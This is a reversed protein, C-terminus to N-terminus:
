GATPIDGCAIPSSLDDISAHIAIAYEGMVRLDRLSADITTESAGTDDIPRLLYAPAPDLNDCTGAHIIAVAGAPAGVVLVKVETQAEKPSEALTALGSVGSGGREELTLGVPGLAFGGTATASAAPTSGGGPLTLNALLAERAATESEADVRLTTYEFSLISQGAVIPQCEVYDSYEEAQGNSTYTFEIVAWASDGDTGRQENGSADTGIKVDSYGANGQYYQVLADICAATTNSWPFGSLDVFAKASELRLFDYGDQSSQTVERWDSTWTLSYGYTPSTYSTAASPSGAATVTPSAIPAETSTATVTASAAAVPSAAGEDFSWIIFEEYKTSGGAIYSDAFFGAAVAIDGAAQNETLDLTAVYEGNVGFYGRDGIAILDLNNTANASFNLTSVSGNQKAVGSDIALFWNGTSTLGLQYVHDTTARFLVGYDWAHESASAPNTFKVHVAFDRVNVGAAQYAIQQQQMPLSGQGPGFILPRTLAEDRLLRFQEADDGATVTPAPTIVEPASPTATLTPRPVQPSPAGRETVVPTPTPTTVMATTSVSGAGVVLLITLAISLSAFAIRAM